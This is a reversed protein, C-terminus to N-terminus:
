LSIIWGLLSSFNCNIPLEFKCNRPLDFNYNRPLDFNCNYNSFNYNNFLDFNNSTSDIRLPIMSNTKSFNKILPKPRPIRWNFMRYSCSNHQTKRELQLPKPGSQNGVDQTRNNRKEKHKSLKRIISLM